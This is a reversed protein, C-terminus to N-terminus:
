TERLRTELWERPSDLVEDPIVPLEQVEDTVENLVPPDKGEALFAGNPFVRKTEFEFVQATRLFRDPDAELLVKQALMLDATPLFEKSVLCLSFRPRGNELLRVNNCSGWTVQYTRGDGGLVTFSKQLHLERKQERNLFRYLLSKAKREAKTRKKKEPGLVRERMRMFTARAEPLANRIDTISVRWEREVGSCGCTFGMERSYPWDQLRFTEHHRHETFSRILYGLHHHRAVRLAVILREDLSM